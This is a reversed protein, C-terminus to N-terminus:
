VAVCVCFFNDLWLAKKFFPRQLEQYVSCIIALCKVKSVRSDVSCQFLNFNLLFGAADIKVSIFVTNSESLKDM